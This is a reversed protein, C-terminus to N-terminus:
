ITLLIASRNPVVQTTLATTTEPRSQRITAALRTYLRKRWTGSATGYAPNNRERATINVTGILLKDNGDNKKRASTALKTRQVGTNKAPIIKTDLKARAPKRPLASPDLRNPDSTPPRRSDSERHNPSLDRAMM